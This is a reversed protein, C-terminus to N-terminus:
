LASYLEDFLEFFFFFLREFVDFKWTESVLSKKSREVDGRM